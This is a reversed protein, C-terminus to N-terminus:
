KTTKAVGALFAIMWDYLQRKTGHGQHSIAECGGSKNVYCELKVGGYAGSIYYHGINSGGKGWGEMPSGTVKNIRDRLHELDKQTIRYSM